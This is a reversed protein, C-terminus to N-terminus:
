NLGLGVILLPRDGGRVLPACSNGMKKKLFFFIISLFIGM